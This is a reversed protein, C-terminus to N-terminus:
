VVLYMLYVEILTKIHKNEIELYSKFVLIKFTKFIM